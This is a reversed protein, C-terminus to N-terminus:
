LHFRHLHDHMSPFAAQPRDIKRAVFYYMSLTFKNWLRFVDLDMYSPQRWIYKVDALTMRMYNNPDTYARIDRRYRREDPTRAALCSNCFFEIKTLRSLSPEEFSFVVAGDFDDVINIGCTACNIIPPDVYIESELTDRLFARYSQPFYQRLLRDRNPSGLIEATIREQNFIVIENGQDRLREIDQLFPSSAITSYFGLFTQCRHSRMRGVPDLEASIGVSKGEHAFHKCSVLIRKAVATVRGELKEEFIMDVRGDAGRGPETVPKLGMSKLLDFAFLEFKDQQGDSGNAAPIERFDVIM